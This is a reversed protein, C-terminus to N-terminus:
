FSLSLCIGFAVLFACLNLFQKSHLQDDRIRGSFPLFFPNKFQSDADVLLLAQINRALSQPHLFVDSKKTDLNTHM